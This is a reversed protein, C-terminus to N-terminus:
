INGRDILTCMQIYVDNTFMHELKQGDEKKLNYIKTVGKPAWIPEIFQTSKYDIVRM